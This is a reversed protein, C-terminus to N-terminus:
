GKTLKALAAFPGPDPKEDQPPEFVAGPKRPYPDLGLILYETALAGLDITGGILPEPDNWKVDRPERKAEDDDSPAPAQQPIFELDITEAIENALPELTVVCTQGVTASVSGTVHLGEAGRRTVDFSAQLRPLERLGAVAAIAARVHADAELDYHQGTEPIDERLVPVRWPAPGAPPAVNQPKQEGM